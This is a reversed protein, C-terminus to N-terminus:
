VAAILRHIVFLLMLTDLITSYMYLYLAALVERTRQQCFADRTRLNKTRFWDDEFKALMQMISNYLPGSLKLHM